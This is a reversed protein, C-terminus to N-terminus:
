QKNLELLVFESSKYYNAHTFIFYTYDQSLEEFSYYVKDDNTVYKSSLIYQKEPLFKFPIHFEVFDKLNDGITKYYPSVVKANKLQEDDLSSIGNFTNFFINEQEEDVLSYDFADTTSVSIKDLDEKNEAYENIDGYDKRYQVCKGGSIGRTINKKICTAENFGSKLSNEEKNYATIHLEFSEPLEKFISKMGSQDFELSNCTIDTSGNKLIDKFNSGDFFEKTMYTIYKESFDGSYYFNMDDDYNTISGTCSANIKDNLYQIFSKQIEKKQCNDYVDTSSTFSNVVAACEQDKYELIVQSIPLFPRTVSSSRVVIVKKVKIDQNYKTKFHQIVYQKAKSKYSFYSLYNRSVLFLSSAVLIITFIIKHNKSMVVDGKLNRTTDMISVTTKIM